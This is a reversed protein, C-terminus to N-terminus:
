FNNLRETEMFVALRGTQKGIGDAEVQFIYIGSAVPLQNDTQVDWDLISTSADDKDLTRVLQGALTFIRVKCRVPLNMFRIVRAFQSAEYSSHSYYPNPVVRIGGLQSKALAADNRLAASTSFTFRDNPTAPEAWIFKLMDGNDIPDRSISTNKRAWAVYTLPALPSSTSVAHFPDNV